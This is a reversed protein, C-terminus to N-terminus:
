RCPLCEPLNRGSSTEPLPVMRLMTSPNARRKPSRAAHDPACGFRKAARARRPALHGQRLDQQSLLQAFAAHSVFPSPLMGCADIREIEIAMGRPKADLNIAFRVIAAVSRLAIGSAVGPEFCLPDDRQTDRRCVDQAIEICDKTTDDCVGRLACGEVGRSRRATGRGSVLEPLFSEKGFGGRARSPSPSRSCEAFPPPTSAPHSTRLRAFGEVVLRFFVPPGGGGTPSSQFAHVGMVDPVGRVGAAQSRRATGSGSVLEPLFSGRGFGGRARSPSPSRSCEAFPPPTSAPHSTRLRAFGEVVLRFFVPPGGGGTPSSQLAHVGMVDRVGRVGAAQSRPATGSGSVLEPLFSEREFGGRAGSPSPSRSCEAFPPPTSAPHSAQPRAFGEAVLSFFVPPGGGGNPSSQLPSLVGM